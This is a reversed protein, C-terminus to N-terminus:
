GDWGQWELLRIGDYDFGGRFSWRGRRSPILGGEAEPDTIWRTFAEPSPEHIAYDPPNGYGPAELTRGDHSAPGGKLRVTVM